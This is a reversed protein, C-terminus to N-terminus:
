FNMIKRFKQPTNEISDLRYYTDLQDNCVQYVFNKKNELYQGHGELTIEKLKNAFAKLKAFINFKNIDNSDNPELSFKWTTYPSLFYDGTKMKSIIDNPKTPQGRELSFSIKVPKEPSIYYIRKYCRYYCNGIMELTIKFRSIESDFVSQESQNKLTLKIWINNFKIASMKLGDWIDANFTVEDGNLLNVFDDKYDVSHWTYFPEKDTFSYNSYLYEDGEQLVSKSEKINLILESIRAIRGEIFEPDTISVNSQLDFKDLFNQAFPFKHRKIAQIGVLYQEIALNSKIIIEMKLVDELHSDKIENQGVAVDAILTALQAKETYEDIRDYVDIVTTIGENIKEICRELDASVMFGKTMQNFLNKVDGLTSQISWRSIDLEVHSKGESNKIAFDISQDIMQLQPVMINYVNQEHQRLVQMQQNLENLTADVEKIKNQDDRIQGYIEIGVEGVKLVNKMYGLKEIAQKAIKSDPKRDELFKMTNEILKVLEDRSKKIQKMQDANPIETSKMIKAINGKLADMNREVPILDTCNETRLIVYLDNLQQDLLEFNHKAHKSIREVEAKVLGVPVTVKHLALTSDIVTDAVSTVTGIAAGAIMGQPGMLSLGSAVLKLPGLLTKLFMKQELKKKNEEALKIQTETTKKKTFIEGLLEKIQADTETIVTNIRPIVTKQVLDSAAVIKDNLVSKYADRVENIYVTKKVKQLRIMRTEVIKMFELLNVVAINTSHSKIAFLRSLVSTYLCNIVKQDDAKGNLTRSYNVMRDRLSEYYSNFSLRNRLKFYHSEISKFEAIYDLTTYSAHLDQNENLYELFMDLESVQINNALYERVFHKYDIYTQIPNQFDFPKRKFVDCNAGDIGNEGPANPIGYYGGYSAERSRETKIVDLFNNYAIRVDMIRGNFSKKGGIGGKGDSGKKGEGSIEAFNHANEFAFISSKGSYGGPAGCGGDGGDTGRVGMGGLFTYDEYYYGPGNSTGSTHLHISPDNKLQDVDTIKPPDPGNTGDLGRGGDQGSGGNGGNIYVQIRPENITRGLAFFQGGSGGLKGPAGHEGRQPYKLTKRDSSGPPFENSPRAATALGEEDHGSLDIIRSSNRAIVVIEWVPSVIAVYQSFTTANYDVDLFVKNAAFVEIYKATRSCDLPVIDSILVNFGTVVLHTGNCKHEFKQMSQSWVAQLLKLKFTNVLLDQFTEYKNPYVSDIASKIDLEKVMVEYSEVNITLNMLKTGDIKTSQQISYSSLRDQLDILFSYWARSNDLRAKLKAIANTIENPINPKRKTLVQLFEFLELSQLFSRFNSSVISIGLVDTTDIFQNRFELPQLSSIQSWDKLIAATAAISDRLSHSHQKEKQKFFLEIEASIINFDYILQNKTEEVLDHAQVKSKDSIVMGFDDSEKRVYQLNKNIIDVLYPKEKQILPMQSLPGAKYALRFIGIRTYKGNKKELLIDIFQIKNAIVQREDGAQTGNLKAKLEILTQNLFTAIGLIVSEDDILKPPESEYDYTNPVKTVILAIANRYKDINKILGTAFGVLDMFDHRDGIAVQLATYSVTFILKTSKAFNLLKQILFTAALDVEVGRSDSFGPCDYYALCNEDDTFLDPVITKSTTTNLGSIKDNPDVIRFSGRVGEIPVSNLEVNTLFQTLTSKGSGTMGLILIVDTQSGVIFNGDQEKIYELIQVSDNASNMLDHNNAKIQKLNSLILLSVIFLIVEM